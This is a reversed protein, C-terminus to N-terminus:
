HSPKFILGTHCAHSTWSNIATKLGWFSDIITKNCRHMTECSKPAYMYPTCKLMNRYTQKGLWKMHAQNKIGWKSTVYCKNLSFGCCMWLDFSPYIYVVCTHYININKQEKIEKYFALWMLNTISIFMVMPVHLFKVFLSVIPMEVM